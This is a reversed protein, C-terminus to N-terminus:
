KWPWAVNGPQRSKAVYLNQLLMWSSEGSAIEAAFFAPLDDRSWRM